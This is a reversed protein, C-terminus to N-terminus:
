RKSLHMNLNVQIFIINNNDDDNDKDDNNGGGHLLNYTEVDTQSDTQKNKQKNTQNDGDWFTNSRNAKLNTSPNSM